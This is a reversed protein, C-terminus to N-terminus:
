LRLSLIKRLEENSMETIFTEDTSIAKEALDVKRKVIADIGEELTGKTIFRYVMVDKEQGIRHVRDTAQNEVAPNWWLDYHIVNSAATLNLGVGGTKITAVLVKCEDNNQFNDIVDKREKLSLSGHLFEINCKLKKSVIEKIIEGMKVYQTFIIAKENVDFINELTNILLEMKGSESPKPNKTGLFQAPHNCVQKLGTLIKLIIGKREIGKSKEIDEFVGDLVMNYLKIQKKTLSCYIDNVFKEPLEKVIEDDSKLRRLVFPKAINKLNKLVSEDEFREIPVVYNEKFNSMTSLYGKNTFDFISWYDLLRNEIPTGTLAIRNFAPISKISKTQLTSPNKINQAEDIVCLFWSKDTFLDLDNRIVGYSTLIIDYHDLPFRRNSGHYIYYNLDPTFKNIENEWNSILTTPVIILSTEDELLNTEKLYLIATLVQLTKGLGMDDALISGFGSKMNQVLWSFGIKQYPRLNGTVSEPVQHIVSPNILKKFKDSLKFELDNFHELLAIQLIERSTMRQLFWVYRKLKYFKRWELIYIKDNYHIIENREDTLSDFTDLPIKEKGLDVHWKANIKNLSFTEENLDTDLILEYDTKVIEFPMNLEVGMYKLVPQIENHFKILNKKTLTIKEFLTNEIKFQTFLDYIIKLHKLEDEGSETISKYNTNNKIKIEIELDDNLFLAYKYDFEKLYFVSLKRSINNLTTENRNNKKVIPNGCFTKFVIESLNGHEIKTDNGITNKMLADMILSIAIITQNEKSINENKFTILDDPCKSYYTKCLNVVGDDYFSPIWRIQYYNKSEFLEPMLANYSLQQLTLDFLENLFVVSEDADKIDTPNIKLLFSFLDKYDNMNYDDGINITIKDKVNLGESSEHKQNTLIDIEDNLYEFLNEYIFEFSQSPYDPDKLLKVNVNRLDTLSSKESITKFKHNLLEDINRIPYNIKPKEINLGKIKLILLNNKVLRKNFVKLVSLIDILNEKEDNFSCEIELEDLSSPLIKIESNLFDQPVTKHLLKYKNVPNDNLIKKLHKIENESFPKFKIQIYNTENTHKVSSTVKNGDIKISSIKNLPRLQKYHDFEYYYDYEKEFYQRSFKDFWEQM